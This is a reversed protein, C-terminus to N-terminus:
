RTPLIGARPTAVTKGKLDTLNRIVDNGRKTIFVYPLTLFPETFLMYKKRSESIWLSPLLDIEGNRFLKLLEDWSYGNVYEFSIGLKEGLLELHEIAYGKPM